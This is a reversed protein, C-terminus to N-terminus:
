ANRIGSIAANQLRKFNLARGAEIRAVNRQYAQMRDFRNLAESLREFFLAADKKDGGSGLFMNVLERRASVSRGGGQVFEYFSFDNYDLFDQILVQEDASFHKALADYQLFDLKDGSNLTNHLRDKVYERFRALRETASLDVGGEEQQDVWLRDDAFKSQSEAQTGSPDSYSLPNAVANLYPNRGGQLGIPDAGVWRAIWGAYYRAGHYNLGSEEDREKGTFRYRKRGFSGFSSEGYPTYEERNIFSGDGDVVLSSSGLHDGIHYQVAPGKDEPHAPGVRRIAIRQQDDMVHLHSNEGVESNLDWRHHEFLGGIYTISEVRGGAKRVLKKVRQGGADYLYHAHLSSHDNADDVRFAKMQDSHDWDFRRAATEEIMNGNRDYEYRYPTSNQNQGVTLSHLQNTGPKLEFRRNFGSNGSGHILRELNGLEDYEYSESYLRTLNPANDQNATGHHGSNFGHHEIAQWPEDGHGKTSERGTASKLRYIPDYTFRRVLANGTAVLPALVPDDINASQANNAVGSGPTRDVISLINGVLDYSYGLDQLPLGHPTYTPPDITGKTYRESRLRVLRFTLPDYAYRTMVGNGLAIFARQGKADYVINDVFDEGDLVVRELGGARNYEPRLLKRGGLTDEPYRLTKVRDLADYSSDTRYDRPDLLAAEREALTVTNPTDWDV